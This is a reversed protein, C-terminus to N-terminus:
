GHVLSLSLILDYDKLVLLHGARSAQLHDIKYETKINTLRSLSLIFDCDIRLLFVEHQSLKWITLLINLKLDLKMARKAQLYSIM